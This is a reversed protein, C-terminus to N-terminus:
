RPPRLMPVIPPSTGVQITGLAQFGHREYLPICRPNSAELYALAHDVDCRELAYRMLAGGYGRGRYAPDVGIAPLYWHPEAPHFQALQDSVAVVDERISGSVASSLLEGLAEEDPAVNPPLWLAVGTCDDTCYASGHLLADRALVPTNMAANQLYQHATPSFWRASPDGVFALVITDVAAAEDEENMVRVMPTEMM